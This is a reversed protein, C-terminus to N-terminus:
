GREFRAVLELHASWIFSDVPQIPGLRYGGDVLMRADRAFTAPNCSVAVIRAVKSRALNRSQAAAGTRPPDFIATDFGALDKISLPREALDRTEATVKGLLGARTAAHTVARSSAASLEVAHIKAAGSSAVAFTFTGLGAYLDAVNCADGLMATVAGGLAADAEASAQLFSEAPLDVTVGSLIVTPKRREAVPGIEKGARWSLRALDASEAFAALAELEALGPIDPLDILLDIGSDGLTATAAGKGGAPLVSSALRRLPEVLAFLAPHLVPCERMDVIRHSQRVHFGVEAGAGNRALAWRARRRTGPKLRILPAIEPADFGQRALAGELWGLKAGAYADDSLHQLACGGCEGFHRCVPQARAGPRLVAMLAARSGEATKSEIRARVRDGSATFPVFFRAGDNTGIGDGRVGVSDIDLDIVPSTM